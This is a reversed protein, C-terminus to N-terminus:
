TKRCGGQTSLNGGAGTTQSPHRMKHGKNDVSPDALKSPSVTITIKPDPHFM